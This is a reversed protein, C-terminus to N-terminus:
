KKDGKAYDVHLLKHVKGKIIDSYLSDIIPNEEARRISLLRDADYLGRGREAREEAM